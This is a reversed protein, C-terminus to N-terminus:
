LGATVRFHVGDDQLDDGRSNTELRCFGDTLNDCVDEAWYAELLFRGAVRIRVGVGASALARRDHDRRRNFATGVDLFPALEVRTQGDSRQYVPVRLELSAIGGNDRVLENQRYGRVSGLGGIAFQELGLLPDDSLQADVRAILQTDLTDFRRAYQLQALWSRFRSDPTGRDRNRTADGADVGFSLTSRAAFVQSQSARTLEQGFRLVTVKSVGDERVGQGFGIPRGLLFSKSRRLEARLSLDLQTGPSFDFPQHLGFAYTASRSKIDLDRFPEEIVTSASKRFETELRTGWPGVPVEYSGQVERLGESFGYALNLSDGWGTLNTHAARLRRLESGITPSLGNYTEVETQFARAESVRLRLASESRRPGPELVAEISRIRPDRRLVQLRQELDVVNVPGDEPGPLGRRLYGDRLRGDTEIDVRVLKGEVLRIEVTGDEIRQSELVAGSTVYGRKAYEESLKDRLAAIDEFSVFRRSYPEAIRDLEDQALVTSGTIRYGELFVRAGGELRDPAPDVLPPLVTGRPLSEAQFDPLQLPRDVPQEQQAAAPAASALAAFAALGLWGRRARRARIRVMAGREQM